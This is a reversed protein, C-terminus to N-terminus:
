LTTPPWSPAPGNPNRPDTARGEQVRGKPSVRRTDLIRGAVMLRAKRGAARVNKGPTINPTASVSRKRGNVVSSNSSTTSPRDSTNRPLILSLLIFSKNCGGM